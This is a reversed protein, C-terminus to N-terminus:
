YRGAVGALRLYLRVCWAVFGRRMLRRAGGGVNRGTVPLASALAIEIEHRLQAAFAMDRVFVNAELNLLLSLPDINSSGVTAWEDDVVAVKAHLFAATYEYIQVGHALLEDCLAYAAVEAIRYDWRGQLMLRVRVGRRVADRLAHRISRDPYFYASVLDVSHRARRIADVYGREIGNRQRLNDRIVFAARVPLLDAEGTPPRRHSRLRDLLRRARALPRASHALALVEERWAKGITARMWMARASRHAAVAVPGRVRVAFDLRPQDSWGHRVDFRDDVLNIGGVFAVSADIVCLKHHLRRLQGPQFWSWWRDLPRFLAANVGADRLLRETAPWTDDAGFGDVVVNVMLGRRAAGVLAEVVSAASADFHFIYSALWVEHRAAALAACMAPFLEAGGRLLLVDNGGSYHVGAHAASRQAFAAGDAAAHPSPLPAPAPADAAADPAFTPGAATKAAGPPPADEGGGAVAM